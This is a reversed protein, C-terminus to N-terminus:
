WYLIHIVCVFKYAFPQKFIYNITVRTTETKEEVSCLCQKHRYQDVRQNNQNPHRSTFHEYMLGIVYLNIYNKMIICM